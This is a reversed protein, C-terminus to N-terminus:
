EIDELWRAMKTMPTRAIVAKLAVTAPMSRCRANGSWGHTLTM